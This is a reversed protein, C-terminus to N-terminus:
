RLDSDTLRVTTGQTGLSFVELQGSEGIHLFSSDKEKMGGDEFGRRGSGRRTFCECFKWQM